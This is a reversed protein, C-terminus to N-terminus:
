AFEGIEMHAEFTQIASRESKMRSHFSLFTHGESKVEYVQYHVEFKDGDMITTVIATKGNKKGLRIITPTM